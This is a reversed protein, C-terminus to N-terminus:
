LTRARGPAASFRFGDFYLPVGDRASMGAAAHVQQSLKWAAGVRHGDDRM